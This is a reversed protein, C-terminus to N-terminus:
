PRPSLATDDFSCPRYRDSPIYDVYSLVAAFGPVDWTGCEDDPTDDDAYLSEYDAPLTFAFVATLAKCRECKMRSAVIFYRDARVNLQINHSSDSM